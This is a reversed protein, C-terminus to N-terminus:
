NGIKLLYLQKCLDSRNRKFTSGFLNNTLEAFIYQLLTNLTIVDTIFDYKYGLLSLLNM